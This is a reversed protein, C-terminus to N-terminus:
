CERLLGMPRYLTLVEDAREDRIYHMTLSQPEHLFYSFTSVYASVYDSVNDSVYYRVYARVCTSVYASVYASVDASVCARVYARVHPVPEVTCM